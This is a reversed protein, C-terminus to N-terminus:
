CTKRMPDVRAQCCGEVCSEYGFNACARIRERVVVDCQGSKRIERM